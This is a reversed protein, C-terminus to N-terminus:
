PHLRRDYLLEYLVADSYRVPDQDFRSEDINAPFDPPAKYLYKRLFMLWARSDCVDLFPGSAQPAQLLRQIHWQIPYSTAKQSGWTHSPCTPSRPRRLQWWGSARGTGCSSHM